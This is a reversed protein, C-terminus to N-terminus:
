FIDEDQMSIGILTTMEEMTNTQMQILNMLM